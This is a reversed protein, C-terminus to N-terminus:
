YYLVYAYTWRTGSNREGVLSIQNIKRTKTKNNKTNITPPPLNTMHDGNRIIGEFTFNTTNFLGEQQQQQQIETIGSWMMELAVFITLGFWLRVVMIM